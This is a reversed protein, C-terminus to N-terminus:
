KEDKLRNLIKKVFIKTINKMSYKKLYYFRQKVAKVKIIKNKKIIEFIIKSIKKRNSTIYPPNQSKLDIGEIGKQTSVVIAGLAMAEIIKIRTGSGFKLPVCMCKSYYILNHLINKKVIGKNIIWPLKKSFGGGTLVLKLDPFKKVLNPMIINNLYDVADKNPRYLYSGTYIIYNKLLIQKQVKHDLSLANPYLVTEYNYLKKIKNKEIKSVSTSISAYQFVLKELFKTLYFIIINSYKKRIESEISHSIYVIRSNPLLLKFSFLVVFSYFIWSAGEIIIFNNKTGKLFKLIELILKPLKIIKNIPNEKKIFITRIHKNNIKKVHSIQFIKKKNPWNKFRSNIVASSGMNDPNIPFFTVFATKSKLM